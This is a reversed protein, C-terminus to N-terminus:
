SVPNLFLIATAFWDGLMLMSASTYHAPDNPKTTLYHTSVYASMPLASTMNNMYVGNQLDTAQSLINNNLLVPDLKGTLIYSPDYWFLTNKAKALNVTNSEVWNNLSTDYAAIAGSVFAINGGKAYSSYRSRITNVLRAELQQYNNAYISHLSDSEGQMWIFSHMNINGSGHIQAIDALSDDIFKTMLNTLTGGMDGILDYNDTTGEFWQGDLMSGAATYKIIYWVQDKTAPDTALRYALALEPGFCLGGMTGGAGPTFQVFEGNADTPQWLGEADVNINCYHIFIKSYDASNMSDVVDKTLDSVGYANSQGALIVVNATKDSLDHIDKEINLTWRTLEQYGDDFISIFVVTHTGVSLNMSAFNPRLTFIISGNVGTLDDVAAGGDVFYANQTLLPTYGYQLSDLSDVYYGVAIPNKANHKGNATAGNGDPYGIYGFLEVSPVSGTCTITLEGCDDNFKLQGSSDTYSYVTSGGHLKAYYEVSVDGFTRTKWGQNATLGSEQPDGPETFYPQIIGNVAFYQFYRPNMAGPVPEIAENDLHMIAVRFDAQVTKNNFTYYVTGIQEGFRVEFVFNCVYDAPALIRATGDSYIATVTIDTNKNFRDTGNEIKEYEYVNRNTKVSISTVSGVTVWIDKSCSAGDKATYTVTVEQMGTDYTYNSVTYENDALVRSSGNKLYLTVTLDLHQGNGYVGKNDKVDIYDIETISGNVHSSLVSGINSYVYRGFSSQAFCLLGVALLLLVIWLTNRLIKSKTRM